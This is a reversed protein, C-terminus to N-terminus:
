PRTSEKTSNITRFVTEYANLAATEGKVKEIIASLKAGSFRVVALAISLEALITPIAIAEIDTNMILLM